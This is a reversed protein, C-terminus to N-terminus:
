AHSFRGDIGFGDLGDPLLGPFDGSERARDPATVPESHSDAAEVVTAGVGVETPHDVAEQDRDFAGCWVRTQLWQLPPVRRSIDGLNLLGARRQAEGRDSNPRVAM